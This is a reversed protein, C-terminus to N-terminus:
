EIQSNQRKKFNASCAGGLRCVTSARDSGDESAMGIRRRGQNENLITAKFFKPTANAEVHLKAEYGRLTGLENKFLVEYKALVQQLASNDQMYCINKVKIKHLWNRGMLNPGNGPMILLPLIFEENEYKVNVDVSGKAAIKEGTYTRLTVTSPQLHRDEWLENFKKESMLTVGSGTDLELTVEIMM